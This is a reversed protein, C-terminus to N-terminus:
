TPQITYEHTAGSAALVGRRVLSQLAHAFVRRVLRRPNHGRAAGLALKSAVVRRAYRRLTDDAILTDISVADAACTDLYTQLIAVFSGVTPHEHVQTSTHLAHKLKEDHVCPAPRCPPPPPPSSSSSVCANAHAHMAPARAYLETALTVVRAWHCVEDNPGVQSVSAGALYRDSGSIRGQARVFTGVDLTEHRVLRKPMYCPDVGVIDSVYLELDCAADICATGDDITYICRSETLTTAVVLGVIIAVACPWRGHRFLGLSQGGADIRPMCLVDRVCCEVAHAPDCAWRLERYLAASDM